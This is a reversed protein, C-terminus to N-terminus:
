EIERTVADLIARERRELLRGLPPLLASYIAASAALLLVSVIIQVPWGPLWLLSRCLLAALPPLFVIAAAVPLLLFAFIIVLWNVTPSKTPKLSGPAVRFPSIISLWNGLTTFALYGALFTLFGALFVSPSLIRLAAAAALLLFGAGVVFPFCALNKALLLRRREVPSLVYARFGHRDFGFQNFLFQASGMLLFMVIASGKFDAGPAAHSSGHRFFVFAFVLAMLGQSFLVMKIEPARRYSVFIALAIASTEDSFGPLTRELFRSPSQSPARPPAPSSIASGGPHRYFRLTARYGLALFLAALGFGGGSALAAPRPDASFLGRAAVAPWFLPVCSQGEMAWRPLAFAPHHGALRDSNRAQIYLNPLQSLGVLLLTLVVIVLRRRRENLMLSVLWGKLLYTASTVLAFFALLVPLLWFMIAGRGAALGLSLGLFAPLAVILSPTFWSALYNLFFIGRLSIPLHLLKALDVSESRQLETLLGVMWVLLFLSIIVDWAMTLSDPSRLGALVKGGVLFGALSAVFAAFGLLYALAAGVAASLAGRRSWQNCTLRWRLWLITQWQAFSM